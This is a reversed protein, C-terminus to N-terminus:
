EEFICILSKSYIRISRNVRRSILIEDNVMNYITNKHIKLYKAVEKVTAWEGLDAVFIEILEKERESLEDIKSFCYHELSKKKM